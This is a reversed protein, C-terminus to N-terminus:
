MKSNVLEEFATQYADVIRVRPTTSGMIESARSIVESRLGVSHSEHLIEEIEKEATMYM